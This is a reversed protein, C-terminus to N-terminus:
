FGFSLWASVTPFIWGRRKLFQKFKEKQRSDFFRDATLPKKKSLIDAHSIKILGLEVNMKVKEFPIQYGIHATINFTNAKASYKSLTDFTGPLAKNLDSGKLEGKGYLIRSLGLGMYPGGGSLELYPAWTLRFDIYLSNEFADSILKAEEESLYGFSSSLSKFSSLFFRPMFGLGLRTYLSEDLRYKLHLGFNIPYELGFELFRSHILVGEGSIGRESDVDSEKLEEDEGARDALSLTKSSNLEEDKGARDSSSLSKAKSDAVSEEGKGARDSSSLSKSKSDAVSEKKATLSSKKDKELALAPQSAPPVAKKSKLVPQSEAPKKARAPLTSGTVAAVIDKKVLDKETKEAVAWLYFFSLFLIKIIM